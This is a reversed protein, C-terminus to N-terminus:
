FITGLAARTLTVQAPSLGRLALKIWLFTSGWVLALIGIRLLAGYRRTIMAV